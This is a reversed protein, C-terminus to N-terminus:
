LRDGALVSGTPLRGNESSNDFKSCPTKKNKQKKTKKNKKKLQVQLMCFNGPWPDLGLWLLSLVSDKVVLGGPFEESATDKSSGKM